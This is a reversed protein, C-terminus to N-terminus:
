TKPCSSDVVRRCPPPSRSAIWWSLTHRRELSVAIAHTRVDVPATCSRVSTQLYQYAEAATLFKRKLALILYCENLVQPSIVLRMQAVSERIIVTSTRSKARNNPDMAYILLNSDAFILGTM